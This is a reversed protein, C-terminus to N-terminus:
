SGYIFKVRTTEEYENMFKTVTRRVAELQILASPAGKHGHEALLGECKFRAMTDSYDFNTLDEKKLLSVSYLKIPDTLHRKIIHLESVFSDKTHIREDSKIRLYVPRIYDIVRYLDIERKVPPLGVINEDSFIYAKDFKIKNIVNNKCVVIIDEEKLGITKVSDGGIIRGKLMLHAYLLGWTNKIHAEEFEEPFALKNLVLLSNRQYAHELAALNNGITIVASAQKKM